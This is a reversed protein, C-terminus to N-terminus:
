WSGYLLIDDTQAALAHLVEHGVKLLLDFTELGDCVVKLLLHYVATASRLDRIM